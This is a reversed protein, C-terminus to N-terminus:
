ITKHKNGDMWYVNVLSDVNNTEPESDRTFFLFSAIVWGILAFAVVVIETKRWVM